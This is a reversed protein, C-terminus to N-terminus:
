HEAPGSWDRAKALKARVADRDRSELLERFGGIQREIGNLAAVIADTNDMAISTWVEPSGAALRAVDRGGRGLQRRPIGVEALSLGLACSVIHPLHSTWALLQDHEVADMKVPKAGLLTWLGQAQAYSAPTSVTTPCLYVIENEFLDFRSAFWGSRHDGAFPHSGVFRQGLRSKEAASVIERKTSGVDTILTISEAHRELLELIQSTSDGYVALVVADVTALEDFSESIRQGVVGEAVAADLYTNNTDYGLIEVGRAALGRAVSGGIMGLGIVAVSRPTSM